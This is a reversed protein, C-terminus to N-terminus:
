NFHLNFYTYFTFLNFVHYKEHSESLDVKAYTSAYPGEKVMPIFRDKVMPSEYPYTLTIRTQFSIFTYQSLYVLIYIYIREKTQFLM